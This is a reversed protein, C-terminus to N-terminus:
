TRTSRDITRPRRDDFRCRLAPPAPPPARGRRDPERAALRVARRQESVSCRLSTPERLSGVASTAGRLGRGRAKAM